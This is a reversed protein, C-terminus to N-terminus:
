VAPECCAHRWSTLRENLKLSALYNMDIGSSVPSVDYKKEKQQVLSNAVHVATLANFDTMITLGPEHHLFVAEVVSNPLGWLGLFYGGVASHTYGLVIKEAHYLGCRERQAFVMVQEYQEPFNAALILRGTDHLIGAVFADDGLSANKSEMGCIKKALAATELSHQWLQELSYGPLELGEFQSFAHASLFLTRIMNLGLYSVAFSLDTVRQPVGFFASNILQLIKATMGLDRAIVSTLEQTAVEPDHLKEMIEAYLSPLSPLRGMRGIFAKLKQDHLYTGLTCARQVISKLVDPNCPKALYQHTVGISKLILCEDSYGSLILRMTRPHRQMVEKLLDAGDMGPMRMDAVVVDFPAQAMIELASAGSEVFVMDWENRFVRLLRQLGQLVMTEDDVFLIRKKM